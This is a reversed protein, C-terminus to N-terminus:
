IKTKSVISEVTGMGYSTTPKYGYNAFFPSIGISESFASNYALIITPLWEVWNDQKYNLFCRLYQELTQNLRETKGDTQPHYTISLRHNVGLLSILSTQFKLTVLKDRDSILEESMSHRSVVEKHFTHALQKADSGKKFPIFIGYATLYDVVVLISDYSSKSAPDKSIPLKTIWDLTLKKFARDTQRPPQLERYLQHRAHKTRRCVDYKGCFDDVEKHLSPFYYLNQLRERTKKLRFHRTEPTKYYLQLFRQRLRAPLYVKGQFLLLGEIINFDKVEETKLKKILEIAFRNHRTTERLKTTIDKNDIIFTASIRGQHCPTTFATSLRQQHNYWIFGQDNIILIPQTHYEKEEQFYNNRRSLTDARGNESGKQYQIRFNYSSLEESQRVQQQNLVKTSM